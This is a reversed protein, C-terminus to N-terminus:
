NGTVASAPHGLAVNAETLKMHLRVESESLAESTAISGIDDGAQVAAVIRKAVAKRTRSRATPRQRLHRMEHMLTSLGSETTDTLLALGDALRSLRERLHALERLTRVIVLGLVSIVLVTATGTVTAFVMGRYGVYLDRLWVLKTM